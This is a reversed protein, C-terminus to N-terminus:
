EGKLCMFVQRTYALGLVLRRQRRFCRVDKVTPWSDYVGGGGQAKGTNESLHLIQRIAEIAGLKFLFCNQSFLSISDCTDVLRVGLLQGSDFREEQFHVTVGTKTEGRLLAFFVPDVGKYGPLLSPHINICDMGDLTLIDKGVLQNFHASLMVDAKKSVLFSMGQKDNLDKTELVPIGAQKLRQRLTQKGLCFRLLQYLDTVMFLYAAYHIGSLRIQRWSAYLQGYSKNLIRTSLVVGM